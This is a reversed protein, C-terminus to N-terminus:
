CAVFSLYYSVPFIRNTLLILLTLTSVYVCVCKFYKISIKKGRSYYNLSRAEFNRKVYM